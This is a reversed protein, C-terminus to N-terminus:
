RLFTIHANSFFQHDLFDTKYQTWLSQSLAHTVLFVRVVPVVLWAFYIQYYNRYATSPVCTPHWPALDSCFTDWTRPCIKVSGGGLGEKCCCLIQCCPQQSSTWPVVALGRGMFRPQYFWSHIPPTEPQVLFFHHRGAHKPANFMKISLAVVVVERVSLVIHTFENAFYEGFRPTRVSPLCMSPPERRFLFFVVIFYLMWGLITCPSKKPPTPSM